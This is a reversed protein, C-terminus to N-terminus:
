PDPTLQLGRDSRPVGQDRTGNSVLWLLYESEKASVPKLAFSAAGKRPPPM